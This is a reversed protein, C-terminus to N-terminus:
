LEIKDAEPYTPMKAIDQKDETKYSPYLGGKNLRRNHGKSYGDWHNGAIGVVDGVELPIEHSNRPMHQYLVTEDHAMQGGFYYVDDLSRFFAAADPFRNQMIEYAVRCVQSSFTCVLFDSESLFHIDLIIGKLSEDSYRQGLGATRSIDNDSVFVYNKYKERAEPLLKPDDTALYVRKIPVDQKLKLREYYEEVHFMYEEINHFAAETGVKDTRRVHVGVIPTEFKLRTHTEDILNQLSPQPRTVYKVLQGLWWVAPNGHLRLLRESLDEPISLPLYNPRPHLGDVIPLDIVQVDKMRVTDGWSSRGSGSSEVCTDSLPLFYKEWGERSYRWGRSELILTRESGYAMLLCYVVHHLQCGYGCGKNLNCVLKKAKNCDKPNQLYKIRKQVLDGLSKAEEQRWEDMGDMTSLQYLDTLVTRQQHGGDQLVESVKENIKQENGLQRIKNLESRIYFWLETVGNEIRRRIKEHERSPEGVQRSSDFTVKQLQVQKEPQMVQSLESIQKQANKLQEQMFRVTEDKSLQPDGRILALQRLEEAHKRLKENQEKMVEIESVMKNLDRTSINIEANPGIAGGIYLLVILWFALLAVVIKWFTKM